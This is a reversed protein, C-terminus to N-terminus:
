LQALVPDASGDGSLAADLALHLDHASVGLQRSLVALSDVAQTILSTAQDRAQPDSPQAVVTGHRGHAVVLGARALAEYVKAVTGRALDLDAALHRIAPLQRGPPLQGALIQLEIQSRLQEFVPVASALDISVIM